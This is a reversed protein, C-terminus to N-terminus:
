EDFHRCSFLKFSIRGDWVFTGRLRLIDVWMTGGGSAQALDVRARAPLGRTLIGEIQTKLRM